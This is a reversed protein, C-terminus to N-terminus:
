QCESSEPSNSSNGSSIPSLSFYTWIGSLRSSSRPLREHQPEGALKQRIVELFDPLNEASSARVGFEFIQQMLPACEILPVIELRFGLFARQPHPAM